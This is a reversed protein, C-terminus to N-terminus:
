DGGVKDDGIDAHEDIMYIPFENTIPDCGYKCYLVVREVESMTADRLKTMM